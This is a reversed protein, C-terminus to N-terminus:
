GAASKMRRFKLENKAAARINNALQSIAKEVGAEVDEPALHKLMHTVLDNAIKAATTSQKSLLEGTNM